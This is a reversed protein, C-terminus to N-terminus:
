EVFCFRKHIFRIGNTVIQTANLPPNRGHFNVFKIFNYNREDNSDGSDFDRARYCQPDASNQDNLVKEDFKPLSSSHTEYENDRQNAKEHPMRPKCQRKDTETDDPTIM